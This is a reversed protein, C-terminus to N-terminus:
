CNSFVELCAVALGSQGLETAGGGPLITAPTSPLSPSCPTSPKGPVM